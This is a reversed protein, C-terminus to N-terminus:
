TGPPNGSVDHRTPLAIGSRLEYELDFRIERSVLGLARADGGARHATAPRAPRDPRIYTFCALPLTCTRRRAPTQDPRPALAPKAAARTSM